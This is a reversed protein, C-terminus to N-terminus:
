LSPIANCYSYPFILWMGTYYCFWYILIRGSCMPRVRTKPNKTSVCVDFVMKKWLGNSLQYHVLSNTVPYKWFFSFFFSFVSHLSDAWASFVISKAGADTLKVHLLHRVLTQIKSGYEGYTEMSQIDSFISPDLWSSSDEIPTYGMCIWVLLM